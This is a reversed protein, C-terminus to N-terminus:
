MEMEINIVCIFVANLILQYVKKLMKVRKFNHQNIYDKQNIGEIVLQMSLHLHHFHWEYM